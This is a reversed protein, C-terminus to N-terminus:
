FNSYFQAISKLEDLTADKKLMNARWSIVIINEPIYGKTNDIRDLSPSGSHSVKDGMSLPIGLVPCNAPIVIDDLTLTHELGLKYARKRSSRLLAKEPYKRRWSREWTATKKRNKERYQQCWEKYREPNNAIWKATNERYKKKQEDTSM